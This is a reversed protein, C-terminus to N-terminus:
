SSVGQAAKSPLALSRSVQAKNRHNNKVKYLLRPDFLEEPLAAAGQPDREQQQGEGSVLGSQL